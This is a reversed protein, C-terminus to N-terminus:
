DCVSMKHSLHIPSEAEESLLLQYDSLTLAVMLRATRLYGEPESLPQLVESSLSDLRYKRRM